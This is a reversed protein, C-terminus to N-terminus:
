GSNESATERLVAILGAPWRHLSAFLMSVTLKMLGAPIFFLEFHFITTPRLVSGGELDVFDLTVDMKSATPLHEEDAALVAWSLRGPL